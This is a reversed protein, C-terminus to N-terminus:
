SEALRGLAIKGCINTIVEAVYEESGHFDLEVLALWVLAVIEFEVGEPEMHGFLTLIPDSVAEPVPVNM